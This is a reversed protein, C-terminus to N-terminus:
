RPIEGEPPDGAKGEFEREKMQWRDYVILRSFSIRASRGVWM